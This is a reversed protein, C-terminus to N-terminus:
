SLALVVATYLHRLNHEAVPGIEGYTYFGAWPADPGVSQRFRKLLQVKEQDRFMMKGRSCCDFHFVLKPQAGELQEKIQAAIRDLGTTIKQKDRSSFWVSTGEQVDTQVTVSGNADNIRPIAQVTYEEDEFYEPAKFCLALTLAYRQWDGVLDPDAIYEEIVELVPKGGIEQIVNGQCRTVKRESGIPICDHSIAWAAQAEGSLLAYAVGDSVVEDDFYQYTQQRAFNDAAAGGWLPLFRDSSLDTELGSVFRNFNVTLADPFVFMGIAASSLDSQLNQAVQQGVARSDALLGIALGNTWHLEESSIVTVVVSFNSEDADEGGITGEASCGTLPAGGTTERVARLLSHQDYGVSAFM